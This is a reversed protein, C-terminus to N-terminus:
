KKLGKTIGALHCQLEKNWKKLRDKDLTAVINLKNLKASFSSNRKWAKM